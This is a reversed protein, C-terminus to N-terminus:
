DVLKVVALAQWAVERRCKLAQGIVGPKFEFVQGAARDVHRPHLTM